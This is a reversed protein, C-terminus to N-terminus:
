PQSEAASKLRELTKQMGKILAGRRQALTYVIDLRSEVRFSETVSTGGDSETFSYTWITGGADFSFLRNTECATVVPTTSWKYFWLKNTGRFKAGVAPGTAGDVWEAATTEPSWEGMRTVDTVLAWVVEPAANIHITAQGEM